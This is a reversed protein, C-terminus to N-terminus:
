RRMAPASWRAALLGAAAILLVLTGPEPIQTQM